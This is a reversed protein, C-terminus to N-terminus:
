KGGGIRAEVIKEAEQRSPRPPTKPTADLYDTLAAIAAPDAIKAIARVVEVRAPDPGFDARKLILGLCLALAADPVHGLEDGVKRALDADALAALSRAAPQEGKAFLKFLPEIADRVRGKAAAAAAAGRVNGVGDHLGAVVAAHADPAPYLALVSIAASRV